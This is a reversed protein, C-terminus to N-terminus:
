ADIFDFVSPGTYDSFVRQNASHRRLLFPVGNATAADRDGTSDGIMLCRAPDVRQQEITIRIAQQKSTPAGFTAHFQSALGLKPLLDMIEDHPTATVLVRRQPGTAGLLERVGPVWPAELVRQRVLQGFRDCLHAVRAPTPAEGAWSLYLPIKQLRSVGGHEVHHQRIREGLAPGHSAFLEVFADEKLTVTEKIVGDFDWFQCQAARLLQLPTLVSGM